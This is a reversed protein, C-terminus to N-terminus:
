WFIIYNASDNDNFKISIREIIKGSCEGFVKPFNIHLLFTKVYIEINNHRCMSKFTFESLIGDTLKVLM